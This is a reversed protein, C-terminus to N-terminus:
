VIASSVQPIPGSADRIHSRILEADENRLTALGSSSLVLKTERLVRLPFAAIAYDEDFTYTDAADLLYTNLLKRMGISELSLLHAPIEPETFRSLRYNSTERREVLWELPSEGGIQQSLLISNPFLRNFEKFVCKHTSSEKLNIGQGGVVAKMSFATHQLYFICLGQCALFARLAYFVSYYFQVTSWTYSAAAFSEVASAFTLCSSFYYDRADDRLSSRLVAGQSDSLYFSNLVGKAVGPGGIITSIYHPARHM